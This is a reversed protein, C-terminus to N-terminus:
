EFGCGHYPIIVKALMQYSNDSYKCLTNTLLLHLNSRMTATPDVGMTNQLNRVKRTASGYNQLGLLEIKEV